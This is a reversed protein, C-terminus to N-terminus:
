VKGRAYDGLSRFVTGLNAYCTAEGRRNAIEMNIALAKELYEKAKAYDDLSQFVTGLNAYCAAEGRRNAIEMNIALAEEIYEKAKNYDGLSEFVAGLNGYNRAEEARDGIEINIALAKGHYEKAKDYECLSQFVTGLDGYAIAEGKKNGIGKMITVSREYLEKAEVYKNQNQYIIALAISLWGEQVAEDCQRHIVLLKRGYTIANTNDHIRCYAQFLIKFIETCILKGFQKERMLTKRNLLVLSEKCLEISKVARGTNLLFTAVVLSISIAEIIEEIDIM